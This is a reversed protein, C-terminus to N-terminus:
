STLKYSTLLAAIVFPTLQNFGEELDEATLGQNSLEVLFEALLRGAKSLRGVDEGDLQVLSGKFSQIVRVMSMLGLLRVANMDGFTWEDELVMIQRAQDESLNQLRGQTHTNM